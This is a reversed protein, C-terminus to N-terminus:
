PGGDAFPLCCPACSSESRARPCAFSRVQVGAAWYPVPNFNSSDLRLPGPYVRLLRRSTHEIVAEAGVGALLRAARPEKLSCMQFCTQGTGAWSMSSSASGEGTSGGPAPAHLESDASAPMNFTHLYVLEWLATSATATPNAAGGSSASSPLRTASLAAGSGSRGVVILATPRAPTTEAAVPSDGTRATLSEHALQAPSEVPRLVASADPTGTRPRERHSMEGGPSASALPAASPPGASAGALLNFFSVLPSASQPLPPAPSAALSASAQLRKEPPVPSKLKAKLLVKGALARPSPLLDQALALAAAHSAIPRGTALVHAQNTVHALFPQPLPRALRDGFADLLVEAVVFSTRSHLPGRMDVRVLGASM